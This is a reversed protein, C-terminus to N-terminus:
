SLQRRGDDQTRAVGQDIRDGDSEDASAAPVELVLLDVILKHEHPDTLHKVETDKGDGLELPGGVLADEYVRGHHREVLAAYM